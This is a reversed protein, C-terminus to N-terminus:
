RTVKRNHKSPVLVTTPWEPWRGLTAQLGADGTGSEHLVGGVDALLMM